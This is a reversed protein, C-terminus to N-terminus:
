QKKIKNKTNQMQTLVNFVATQENALSLELDTNSLRLIADGKKLQAGDEM